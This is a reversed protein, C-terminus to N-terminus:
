GALLSRNVSLLTFWMTRASRREGYASLDGFAASLSLGAEKAWRVNRQDKVVAMWGRGSAKVLFGRSVLTKAMENCLKKTTCTVVWRAAPKKAASATGAAIALLLAAIRLLSMIGTGAGPKSLGTPTHIPLLRRDFVTL